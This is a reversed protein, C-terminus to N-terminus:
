EPFRKDTIASPRAITPLGTGVLASGLSEEEEVTGVLVGEQTAARGLVAKNSPAVPTNCSGALGAMDLNEDLGCPLFLVKDIVHVVGNTAAVDAVTVLAENM